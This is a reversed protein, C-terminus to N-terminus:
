APTTKQQLLADEMLQVDYYAHNGIRLPEPVKGQKVWRWLSVPAVGLHEAMRGSSLYLRGKIQMERKM